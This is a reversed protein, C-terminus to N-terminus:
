YILSQYYNKLTLADKELNPSECIIRGFVKRDVLVRLFDKYNFDSEVLELHKREGKNSFCIGSLHIHVDNLYEKGFANEVKNIFEKFSEYDNIKGRSGAYIHSIDLCLSVRKDAKRVAILEDLTGFSKEKGMTEPSIRVDIQNEELFRFVDSLGDVVNKVASAKNEPYFGCHFAISSAGCLYGIRASDNIRRISAKLKAKDSSNLNIYYPAHVSLLVGNETACEKVSSAKNEGMKVGYVFELEMCGLGLKKIYEIGAVTDRKKCGLPIGATGFLIKEM